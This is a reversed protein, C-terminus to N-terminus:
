SDSLKGWINGTSNTARKVFRGFEATELVINMMAQLSIKRTLFLTVRKNYEYIYSFSCNILNNTSRAFNLIAYILNVWNSKFFKWWRWSLLTYVLLLKWRRSTLDINKTRQQFFLPLSNINESSPFLYPLRDTALLRPDPLEWSIQPSSPHQSLHPLSIRADCIGCPACSAIEPIIDFRHKLGGSSCQSSLKAM